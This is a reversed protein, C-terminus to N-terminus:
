WKGIEVKRGKKRRLKRKARSTRWDIGMDEDIEHPREKEASRRGSTEHGSGTQICM